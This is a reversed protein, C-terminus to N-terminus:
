KPQLVGELMKMIVYSDAYASNAFIPDDDKPWNTVRVNELIPNNGFREYLPMIPLLENFAKVMKTTADKQKAVDTGAGVDLTLQQFDVDGVSDTTQKLPFAMGKGGGNASRVTYRIITSDYAFQPFPDNSTGWGRIAIQFDGKDITPDVATFTITRLATKIGFKTLQEAANQASASSDAYEAPTLIEFECRTGDKTVWVNDSGKKWGLDTLMQAGKNPDYAYTNLKDIDAQAMWDPLWADAIGAMYKPPKGSAAYTVTANQTRDIAYAIAQRVKKDGFVNGLKDFNFILAGGSFTPPRGVRIGAAIFAQETAPPFGHTAYDV